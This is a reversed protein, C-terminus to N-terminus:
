APSEGTGAHGHDTEGRERGQLVTEPYRYALYAMLADRSTHRSEFGLELRAREGDAVFLFRAYDIFGGPAEGIGTGWLVEAAPYALV